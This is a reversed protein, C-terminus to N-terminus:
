KPSVIIGVVEATTRAVKGLSNVLSSAISGVAASGRSIYEYATTKEPINTILIDNVDNIDLLGSSTAKQKQTRMIDDFGEGPHNDIVSIDNLNIDGIHLSYIADFSEGNLSRCPPSIQDFSVYEVCHKSHLPTNSPTNSPTYATHAGSSFQLSAERAKSLTGIIPIPDSRLGMHTNHTNYTNHINQESPAIIDEHTLHPPSMGRRINNDQDGSAFHTRHIRINRTPTKERLSFPLREQEKSLLSIAPSPIKDSISKKQFAIQPFSAEQNNRTDYRYTDASPNILSHNSNPIADSFLIEDRRNNSASMYMGIGGDSVLSNVQIRCSNSAIGPGPGPGFSPGPPSVGPIFMGPPSTDNIFQTPTSRDNRLWMGKRLETWKM